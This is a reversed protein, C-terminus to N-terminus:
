KFHKLSETKTQFCKRCLPHYDNGVVLRETSGSKRASVWADNGCWDCVAHLKTVEDALAMLQASVNFVAGSYDMDLGGCVVIRDKSLLYKVTDILDDGFFQIEDIVFVQYNHVFYVINHPDDLSIADVTTGNHSVINDESYRDDMQPKIYIVSKKAYKYRNGLRQIEETKGAFMSGVVVKLM